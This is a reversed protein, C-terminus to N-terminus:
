TSHLTHLWLKPLHMCMSLVVTGSLDHRHKGVATILRSLMRPKAATSLTHRTDTPVVQEDFLTQHM